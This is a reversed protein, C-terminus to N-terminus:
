RCRQDFILTGGEWGYPEGILKTVEEAPSGPECDGGYRVRVRGIWDPGVIVEAVDGALDGHSRQPPRGSWTEVRWEGSVIPKEQADHSYVRITHGGIALAAAPSIPDLFLTHVSGIILAAIALALGLVFPAAVILLITLPRGLRFVLTGLM